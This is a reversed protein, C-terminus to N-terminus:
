GRAAQSDPQPESAPPVSPDVIRADLWENLHAGLYLIRHGFKLYRPGKGLHRWQALTGATGILALETDHTRYYRDNEFPKV